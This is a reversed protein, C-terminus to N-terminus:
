AIRVEVELDLSPSNTTTTPSDPAPLDVSIRATLPSTGSVEPRQLDVAV